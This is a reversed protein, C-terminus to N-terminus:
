DTLSELSLCTSLSPWGERLWLTVWHVLLTLLIYGGGKGRGMWSRERFILVKELKKHTGWSYKKPICVIMYEIDEEPLSSFHNSLWPTSLTVWYFVESEPLIHEGSWSINWAYCLSPMPFTLVRSPSLGDSWVSRSFAALPQQSIPLWTWWHHPWQYSAWEMTFLRGDMIM